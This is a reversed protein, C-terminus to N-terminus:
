KKKNKSRQIKTNRGSKTLSASKRVISAIAAGELGMVLFLFPTNTLQEFSFMNNATYSIIALAFGIIEVNEEAYKFSARVGSYLMGVFATLGLLGNNVLLTIWENHANTLRAGKFVKDSIEKAAPHKIMEYYFTDPGSGILKHGFDMDAFTMLGIKWTAGRSSAWRNSFFFFRNKGVRPIIGGMITNFIVILVYGLFVSVIFIIFIKRVTGMVKVPYEKLRYFFLVYFIVVATLVAFAGIGFFFELMGFTGTRQKPMIVDILGILSAPILMTIVLETFTKFREKQTVTFCFLVAFSIFMAFIGSDSANVFIMYFTILNVVTLTIKLWLKKAGLYLGWCLPVLVSTYGCFWNINGLSALFSSQDYEIGMDIPAIKYRNLIGWLCTVTLTLMVPINAAKSYRLLKSLIFYFMAFILYSMLGMYWGRTGWLSSEYFWETLYREGGTKFTSCFHSVTSLLIFALVFIDVRFTGKYIMIEEKSYGWLSMRLLLFIGAVIGVYEATYMIYLYKNSAILTYGDKFFLPLGVFYILLVAWALINGVHDTVEGINKPKQFKIKGAM